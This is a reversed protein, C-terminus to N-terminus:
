REAKTARWAIAAASLLMLSALIFPAGPFDVSASLTSDSRIFFAFTQTFLTPGIMGTMGNISAIAGQLQGQESSSIHRTMLSQNAPGALGWFAMVPIGLCFIWGEPSLGYVSFGFAGCLLGILLTSREGIRATIPRILGGQV